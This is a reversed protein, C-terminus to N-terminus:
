SPSVWSARSSGTPQLSGPKSSVPRDGATGYSRSMAVRNGRVASGIRRVPSSAGTATVVRGEPRVMTSKPWFM